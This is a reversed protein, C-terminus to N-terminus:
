EDILDSFDVSMDINPLQPNQAVVFKAHECRLRGCRLCKWKGDGRQFVHSTHRQDDEIEVMAPSTGIIRM